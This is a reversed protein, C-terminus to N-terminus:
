VLNGVKFIHQLQNVEDIFADQLLLHEGKRFGITKNLHYIKDKSIWITPTIPGSTKLSQIIMEETPKIRELLNVFKWENTPPCAATLQFFNIHEPHAGIKWQYAKKKQIGIIKNNTHLKYFGPLISHYIPTNYTKILDNTTMIKYLLAAENKHVAIEIEAVIGTEKKGEHEFVCLTHLWKRQASDIGAELLKM